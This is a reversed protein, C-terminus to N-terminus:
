GKLAHDIGLKISHHANENCDMYTEAAKSVPVIPDILGRCDLSQEHLLRRAEDLIRQDWSFDRPAPPGAARSTVM